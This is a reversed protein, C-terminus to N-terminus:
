EDTKRVQVLSEHIYVCVLHWLRGILHLLNLRFVFSTSQRLLRVNFEQKSKVSWIARPLLLFFHIHWKYIVLALLLRAEYQCRQKPNAAFSLFCGGCFCVFPWLCNAHKFDLINQCLTIKSQFICYCLLLIYRKRIHLQASLCPLVLLYFSILDLDLKGTSTLHVPGQKLIMKEKLSPKYSRQTHWPLTSNFMLCFLIYKINSIFSSRKCM